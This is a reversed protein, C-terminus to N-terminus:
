IILQRNPQKNTQTQFLLINLFTLLFVAGAQIEFMDDTCINVMILLMLWIGLFSKEKFFYWLCCLILFCLILLGLIGLDLWTHLIQNHTHMNNLVLDDFHFEKFQQLLLPNAEGTGYGTIWKKEILGWELKWAVKRAGTSNSFKTDKEPLSLNGITEQIRYNISPISFFIIITASILAILGIRRFWPNEIKGSLYWVFYIFFLFVYILITKSSLFIIALFFILNIFFLLVRWFYGRYYNTMLLWTMYIFGFAFYNSYYGPHMIAASLNMRKFVEQLGAYGFNVSSYISAYIFSVFASACFVNFFLITKNKDFYNESAFFLPLIFFCIKVEISHLGEPIHDSFPLVILHFLFFAWMILLPLTITIKKIKLLLNSDVLWHLALLGIGVSNIREHWPFSAITLCLIIVWLGERNFKIKVDM